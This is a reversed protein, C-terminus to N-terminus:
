KNRKNIQNIINGHFEPFGKSIFNLFELNLYNKMTNKANSNFVKMLFYNLSISFLINFFNKVIFSIFIIILYFTILDINLNNKIFMNIMKIFDSSSEINLASLALPYISGISILELSSNIFSFLILFILFIKEKKSLISIIKIFNKM